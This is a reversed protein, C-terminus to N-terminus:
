CKAPYLIKEHECRDSLFNEVKEILHQLENNDTPKKQLSYCIRGHEICFRVRVFFKEPLWIGINQITLEKDPQPPILHIISEEKTRKLFFIAHEPWYIGNYSEVHFNDWEGESTVKQEFYNTILNTLDSLLQDFLKGELM